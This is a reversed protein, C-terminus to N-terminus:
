ENKEDNIENSLQKILRNVENINRGRKMRKLTIRSRRSGNLIEPKKRKERSDNVTNNSKDLGM